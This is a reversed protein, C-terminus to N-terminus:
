ANARRRTKSLKVRNNHRRSSKAPAVASGNHSTHFGYVDATPTPPKMAWKGNSKKIRNGTTQNFVMQGSAMKQMNALHGRTM